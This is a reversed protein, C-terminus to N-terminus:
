AGRRRRAAFILLGLSLAAVGAGVQTATLGTALWVGMAVALFPIAPGGPLAFGATNGKRLRIVALCTVSYFVLRAASTLVALYSFTGSIAFLWSVGAFLFIAIWPTKYAPHLWSVAGPLMGQQGLAYLMRSGAVMSVSCTGAISVIAGLTLLAGGSAGLFRRGASAIPTESAGLDPLTGQAVLHIALYFASVILMGAVLALPLTRKPDRVEESPVTVYEFGGFAFFLVLAGEKLSSATLSTSRAFRASDVFFIGIAVFAALPLLKSLTLLNMTWVSQRIGRLNVAVLGAYLATVVAGRGWGELAPPWFYGVYASLGLSVAAFGTLRAILFMWGAEFGVLDGFAAKGYLLPGGSADFHSSAEAFCLVIPLICAAAALYAFAGTDPLIRAVAAPLVYIGAGITGNVVM